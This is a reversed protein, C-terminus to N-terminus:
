AAAPTDEDYNVPKNIAIDGLGAIQEEPMDLRVSREGPRVPSRDIREQTVQIRRLAKAAQYVDPDHAISLRIERTENM